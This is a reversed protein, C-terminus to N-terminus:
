FKAVFGLREVGANQSTPRAQVYPLGCGVTLDIGARRTLHM